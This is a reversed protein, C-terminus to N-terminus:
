APVEGKGNCVDCVVQCQVFRIDDGKVRINENIYVLGLTDCKDCDKMPIARIIEMM